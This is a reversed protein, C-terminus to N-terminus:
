ALAKHMQRIAGLHYAVHAVAGTLGGAMDGTAETEQQTRVFACLADYAARLRVRLEDWQGDDVQAPEFSGKWDFPGRDGDREWRVMVEMHFASHRAHGAISTGHIDQSAQEASLRDLTALLGNNGSGDAATGDLFATGQGPAGGEVAETLIDLIGELVHQPQPDQTSETM